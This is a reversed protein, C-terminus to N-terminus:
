RDETEEMKKVMLDNKEKMVHLEERVKPNCATYFWLTGQQM